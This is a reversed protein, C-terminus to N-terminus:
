QNLSQMQPCVVGGSFKPKGGGAVRWLESKVGERLIASKVDGKWSKQGQGGTVDTVYCHRHRDCSFLYLLLLTTDYISDDCIQVM